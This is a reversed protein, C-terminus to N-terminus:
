DMILKFTRKRYTDSQSVSLHKMLCNKDIANFLYIDINLLTHATNDAIFVIMIAM